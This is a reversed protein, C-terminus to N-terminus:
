ESYKKEQEEKRNQAIKGMISLVVFGLVTIGIFFFVVLKAIFVGEGAKRRIALAYLVSFIGSCIMSLLLNQVVTMKEGTKTWQANRINGTLYTIGGALFVFTEGLVSELNGRWIIQLLIAATCVIFMIYFSKTSVRNAMLEQREDLKKMM